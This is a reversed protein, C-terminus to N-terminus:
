YELYGTRQSMGGVMGTKAYLPAAPTGSASNGGQEHHGTSHWDDTSLRARALLKCVETVM